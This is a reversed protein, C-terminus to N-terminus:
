SIALPHKFEIQFFLHALIRADCIRASGMKPSHFDNVYTSIMVLRDDVGIRARACATGCLPALPDMGVWTRGM